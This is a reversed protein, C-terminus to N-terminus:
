FAFGDNSLEPFQVDAGASPLNATTSQTSQSEGDLGNSASPEQGLACSEASGPTAGPNINQTSASSGQQASGINTTVIAPAALLSLALAAVFIGATSGKM